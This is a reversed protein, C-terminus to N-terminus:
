PAPVPPLVMEQSPFVLDPEDTWSGSANAEVISRWYRTTRRDTPATGWRQALTQEAVHWLHDGVRHALSREGRQRTAGLAPPDSSTGAEAVATTAPATTTTSTTTTAEPEVIVRMVPPEDEPASCPCKARHHHARRRRFRKPELQWRSSPRRWVLVSCPRSWGSGRCGPWPSPRVPPSEQADADSSSWPRAPLCVGRTALRLAGRTSGRRRRQVADLLETLIGM